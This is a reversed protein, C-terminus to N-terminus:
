PQLTERHCFEFVQYFGILRADEPLGALDGDERLRVGQIPYDEDENNLGLLFIRIAETLQNLTTDDGNDVLSNFQFNTYALGDAGDLDEVRRSHQQQYTVLPYKEPATWAFSVVPYLRADIGNAELIHDSVGPANKLTQYVWEKILM